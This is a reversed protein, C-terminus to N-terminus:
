VPGLQGQQQQQQKSSSGAAAAAAGPRKADGGVSHSMGTFEHPLCIVLSGFMDFGKM